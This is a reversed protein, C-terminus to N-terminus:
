LTTTISFRVTVAVVGNGLDAPETISPSTLVGDGTDYLKLSKAIEQAASLFTPRNPTERNLFPDEIVSIAVSSNGYCISADPATDTFSVTGVVVCFNSRPVEEEIKAVINGKEEEFIPLDKLIPINRVKEAIKAQLAQLNM